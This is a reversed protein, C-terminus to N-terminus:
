QKLQRELTNVKAELSSIHAQVRGQERRFGKYLSARKRTGIAGVFDLDDDTDALLASSSALVRHLRNIESIKETIQRHITANATM